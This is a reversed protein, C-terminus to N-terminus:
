PLGMHWLGSLVCETDADVSQQKWRHASDLHPQGLPIELHLNGTAADVMGMEAQEPVSFGSRGTSTLYNQAQLLSPLPGFFFMICMAFKVPIKQVLSGSRVSHAFDGRMLATNM